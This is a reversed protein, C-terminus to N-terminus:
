GTPVINCAHHNRHRAQLLRGLATYNDPSAPVIEGDGNESHDAQPLPLVNGSAANNEQYAQAVPEPPTNNVAQPLVSGSAGAM